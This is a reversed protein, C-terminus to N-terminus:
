ANRVRGSQLYQPFAPYGAPPMKTMRRRVLSSSALISARGLVRCTSRSRFVGGGCSGRPGLLDDDGHGALLVVLGPMIGDCGSSRRPIPGTPGPTTGRPSGGPWRRWPKPRSDRLSGPSFSRFDDQGVAGGVPEAGAEDGGVHGPGDIRQSVRQQQRRMHGGTAASARSRGRRSTSSRTTSRSPCFLRAPVVTRSGAPQRRVQRRILMVGVPGALLAVDGCGDAAAADQAHRSAGGIVDIGRFGVAHERGYHPVDGWYAGWVTLVSPQADVCFAKRLSNGRIATTRQKRCPNQLDAVAAALGAVQVAPHPVSWGAAM